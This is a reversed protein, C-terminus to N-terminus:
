NREHAIGYKKMRNYLATRSRLGLIEMTRKVSGGSRELARRVSEAEVNALSGATPASPSSLEIDRERILVGDRARPATVIAREIVNKLDRVNGPWSHERLKALAKDDFARVPIRHAASLEDVFRAAYVPVLSPRERLPALRVTVVDIRRLLDDRFRGTRVETELDRNTAFLFRMPPLAVAADSGLPKVHRHSRQVVNLLMRQMKMSIEGIEDLFVTKGSASLLIGKRDSVAGTFAGRKHGFLESGLLEDPLAACNIEVLEPRRSHAAIARAIQGKGTGTEGLLLISVDTEAARLLRTKDDASLISFPDLTASSAM